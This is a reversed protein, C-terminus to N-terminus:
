FMKNKSIFIMFVASNHTLTDFTILINEYKNWLETFM